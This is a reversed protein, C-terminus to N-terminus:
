SVTPPVVTNVYFTEGHSAASTAFGTLLESGLNRNYPVAKYGGATQELKYLKDGYVLYSMDNSVTIYRFSQTPLESITISITDFDQTITNYKFM